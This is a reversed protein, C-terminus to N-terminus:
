TERLEPNWGAHAIYALMGALLLNNAIPALEGNRAHWVMAGLMVILLGLAAAATLRLAIRTLGPLILGLGGLIGAGGAVNRVEDSLEYMSNMFEPLGDPPIFQMVGAFIFYCRTTPVRTCAMDLDVPRLVSTGSHATPSLPNDSGILHDPAPSRGLTPLHPTARKGSTLPTANGDPEEKPLSPGHGLMDLQSAVGVALAVGEGRSPHCCRYLDAPLEGAAIAQDGGRASLSGRLGSCVQDGTETLLYRATDHDLFTEAGVPFFLPSGGVSPHPFTVKGREPLRIRPQDILVRGGQSLPEAPQQVSQFVALPCQCDTV